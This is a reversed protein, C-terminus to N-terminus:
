WLVHRYHKIVKPKEEKPKKKIPNSQKDFNRNNSTSREFIRKLEDEEIRYTRHVTSTSEVKEEVIDMYEDAKDWTM